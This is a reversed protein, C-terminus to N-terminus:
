LECIGHQNQLSLYYGQALTHRINYIEVEVALIM